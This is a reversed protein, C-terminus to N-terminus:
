RRKWQLSHQVASLLAERHETPINPSSARISILLQKVSSYRDPLIPWANVRHLRKIEEMITIVAALEMITDSRVIAKKVEKAAAEARQAASKSSLVAIITAIFGVISIFLGAVNALDGWRETLLKTLTDVRPTRETLLSIDISGRVSYIM